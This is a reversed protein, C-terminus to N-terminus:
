GTLLEFTVGCRGYTLAARADLTLLTAGHRQATAAILGDYVAGGEIGAEVLRRVLQQQVRRDLTLPLDFARELFTAVVDGPVRHPEPLRTLVSYTELASHAVVGPREALAARAREHLEHWSAFAAIAVSTDVVNV